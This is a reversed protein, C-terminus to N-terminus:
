TDPGQLGRFILYDDYERIYDSEDYKHSAFVLCVSGPTFNKQSSWIGPPIYLGHSPQNLLVSKRNVSDDLDIEFSGSVAVLFQHCERHAHAGRNGKGSIDYIWYSREITFPIQSEGELFSLNGGSAEKKPLHIIKADLLTRMPRFILYNILRDV